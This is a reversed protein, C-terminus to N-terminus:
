ESHTLSLNEVTTFCFGVNVMVALNSSLMDYISGPIKLFENSENSFRVSDRPSFNIPLHPGIQEDEFTVSAINEIV